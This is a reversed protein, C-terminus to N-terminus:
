LGLEKLLATVKECQDGQVEVWDEFAKGGAACRKKLVHLLADTDGSVNRIITMSKGGPRRELSVPYGGKKTRAVRFSPTAKAASPNELPVAGEPFRGVLQAFPNDEPAAGSDAGHAQTRKDSM